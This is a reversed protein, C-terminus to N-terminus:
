KCSIPYDSPRIIVAKEGDQKKGEIRVKKTGQKGVDSIEVTEVSLVEGGLILKDGVKIDKAIKKAM